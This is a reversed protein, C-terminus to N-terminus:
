SDDSGPAPPCFGWEVQVQLGVQESSQLVSAVGGVNRVGAPCGTGWALFAPRRGRCVGHGAGKVELAQHRARDEEDKGRGGRRM